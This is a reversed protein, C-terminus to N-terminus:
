IDKDFDSLHMNWIRADKEKQKLVAPCFQGLLRHCLWIKIQDSPFPKGQARYPFLLFELQVIDKSYWGPLRMFAIDRGTNLNKIERPNFLGKKICSTGLDTGPYPEFIGLQVLGPSCTRICEITKNFEKRSEGPIGILVYM